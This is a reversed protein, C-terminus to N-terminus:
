PAHVIVRNPNERKAVFGRAQEITDFEEPAWYGADWDYYWRKVYWWIWCRKRQVYFLGDEEVIRYKSRM